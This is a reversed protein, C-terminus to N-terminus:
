PGDRDSEFLVGFVEREAARVHQSFTPQSIGLASACQTATHERPWEFYGLRFATELAEFQKDTLRGALAVHLGQPTRIPPDREHQALLESAPHDRQFAELVRRVDVGSPVVAVVRGVGSAAAVSRTIAGAEALSGTVTDDVVVFEFLCGDPGDGVLRADAVSPEEVAMSHVRDASADRFSVVEVIRDDARHLLEELRVECDAELSARVLFCAPDRVRLVIETPRDAKLLDTAGM